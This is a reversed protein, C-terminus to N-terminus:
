SFLDLTVPVELQTAKLDGCLYPEIGVPIDDIRRLVDAGVGWDNLRRAVAAVSALYADTDVNVYPLVDLHMSGNRAVIDLEYPLSWKRLVSCALETAEIASSYLEDGTMAWVEEMRRRMYGVRMRRYRGADGDGERECDSEEVGGGGGGAGVCM